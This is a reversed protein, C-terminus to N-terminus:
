DTSKFLVFVSDSAIHDQQGRDQLDCLPVTGRPNQCYSRRSEVFFNDYVTAASGICLINRVVRHNGRRLSSAIVVILSAVVLQGWTGTSMM